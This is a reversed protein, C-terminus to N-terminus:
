KSRFRDLVSNGVPTLWFLEDGDYMRQCQILALEILKNQIAANLGAPPGYWNVYACDSLQNTRLWELVKAESDSIKSLAVDALVPSKALALRKELSPEEAIVNMREQIAESYKTEIEFNGYKFRLCRGIKPVILRRLEARFLVAVTMASIPWLASSIIEIINM